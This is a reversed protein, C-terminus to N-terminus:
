TISRVININPTEEQITSIVDTRSISVGSPQNYAMNQDSCEEQNSNISPEGQDSSNPPDVVAATANSKDVRKFAQTIKAQSSDFGKTASFRLTSYSQAKRKGKNSSQKTVKVMVTWLHVFLHIYFAFPYILFSQVRLLAEFKIRHGARIYSKIPHYLGIM